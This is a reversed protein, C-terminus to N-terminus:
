HKRPCTLRAAWTRHDATYSVLIGANTGALSVNAFARSRAVVRAGALGEAGLRSLHLEQPAGPKAEAPRAYALWTEGCARAAAAPAPDLGNPYARWIVPAGMKPREGIQVGALGFSTVDRELAVFGWVEGSPSTGAIVETLAQATGGVWAVVDEELAVKGGREVLRRAHMPSMGTRGELALAMAGQSTEVLAVSSAAAGEPSLRLPESGAIWLRATSDGGASTPRAIYAIVASTGVTAAAVRTGDRAGEALVELEGGSIKRSVLRGKSIWYAFDGAIAPGRAYPAFAGGDLEIPAIPAKPAKPLAALLVQADRTILVVGQASASAPGAPGVDDLLAADGDAVSGADLAEDREVSRAAATTSPAPRTASPAADPRPRPRERQCGLAVLALAALAAAQHM